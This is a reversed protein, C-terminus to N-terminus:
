IGSGPSRERGFGWGLFKLLFWQLGVVYCCDEEIGSRQDPARGRGRLGSGQDLQLVCVWVNFVPHLCLRGQLGAHMVDM